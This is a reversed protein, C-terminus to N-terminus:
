EGLISRINAAVNSNDVARQTAADARAQAVALAQKAEEAVEKDLAVAEDLAEAAARFTSKAFDAKSQALDAKDVEVKKGFAM